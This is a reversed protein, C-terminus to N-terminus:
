QVGIYQGILQQLGGLFNPSVAGGPAVNQPAAIGGAAPPVAPQAAPAAVAGLPAGPVIGGPGPAVGPGVAPGAGPGIAGIPQVRHGKAFYTPSCSWKNWRYVRHNNWKWGCQKQGVFRKNVFRRGGAEAQTAVVFSLGLLVATFAFLRKSNRM